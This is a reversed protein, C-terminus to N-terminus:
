VARSPTIAVPLHRRLRVCIESYGPLNDPTFIGHRIFFEMMVLSSNPKFKQKMMADKVEEVGWLLFEEVEDDGPKPIIDEPLEIDYLYLVQSYVLPLPKPFSSETVHTIVGVSVAQTEVYEKPLSAEEHAEDVICTFPTDDAKIGGAVSTDLMGPYTKLHKSRRPVWVKIGKPTRVFATMHAGGGAVGFIPSTFREFVVDDNAGMLRFLESHKHVIPFLKSEIIADVTDQFAAICAKSTDKGESSDTIKVSLAVHDITFQSSWPIMAVADPLMMGHPRDDGPLLLKYLSKFDFDYPVNDILNFLELFSRPPNSNAM